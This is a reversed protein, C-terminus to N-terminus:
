LGFLLRGLGPPRAPSLRDVFFPRYALGSEGQDATEDSKIVVRTRMAFIRRASRPDCRRISNKIATVALRALRQLMAAIAACRNL